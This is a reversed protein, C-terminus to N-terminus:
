SQKVAKNKSVAAIIVYFVAAALSLIGGYEVLVWLIDGLMQTKETVTVDDYEIFFQVCIVAQSILQLVTMAGCSVLIRGLPFATKENQSNGKSILAAVIYMCAFFLFDVILWTIATSLTNKERVNIGSVAIDYALCFARDAFVTFCMLGAATFSRMKSVTQGCYLVSAVSFGYAALLLVDHVTDLFRVFNGDYAVDAAISTVYINFARLLAVALFFVAFTVFPVHKKASNM